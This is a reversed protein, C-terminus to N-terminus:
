EAVFLEFQCQGPHNVSKGRLKQGSKEGIMAWFAMQFCPFEKIGDQIMRACTAEFLCRKVTFDICESQPQIDLDARAIIGATALTTVSQLITQWPTELVELQIGAQTLFKLFMRSAEEAVLRSYVATRGTIKKEGKLAGLLLANALDTLMSTHTVDAM